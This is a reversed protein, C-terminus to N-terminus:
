EEPTEEAEVTVQMDETTDTLGYMDTVTLTVNYTGAEAYTHSPNQDTSTEEDGFDWSWTLTDDTNADTSTDTFNVMLYEAVYTFDAVPAVNGVIVVIEESVEDTGDSVTLTVTYTGNEAYEAVPDEEDSTQGDGFDWVYTLVDDADDDTATVDFTVTGGAITTNHNIVPDAITLVPANNTPTTDDDDDGGDGTEEEVCGSLMGVLLALGVLFILIKKM